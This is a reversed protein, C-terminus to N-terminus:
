YAELRDKMFNSEISIQKISMVEKEIELLSDLNTMGNQHFFARLKKIHDFAASATIEDAKQPRINGFLGNSVMLKSESRRRQATGSKTVAHENFNEVQINKSCTSVGM